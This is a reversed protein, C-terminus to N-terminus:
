GTITITITNSLVKLPNGEDDTIGSFFRYVQVTYKGPRDLKYVRSLKITNTSSESPELGCDHIDNPEVNMYPRVAKEALNGDEDRVDYHYEHNVGGSGRYTCEVTEKSTNTQVITIKVDTGARFEYTKASLTLTYPAQKSQASSSLAAFLVASVLIISSFLKKRITM